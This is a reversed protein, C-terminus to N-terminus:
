RAAFDITIEMDGSIRISSRARIGSGQGEKFLGLSECECGCESM